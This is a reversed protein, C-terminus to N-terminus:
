KNGKMMMQFRELDERTTVKFNQEEGSILVVDLGAQFALETSGRVGDLEETTYRSNAEYYTDLRFVEPAQGAVVRSRDLLSDIHKGTKDTLYMTDKVPLVPMVGDHGAVAQLCDTVLQQSLLPRAADHILVYSDEPAYDKIDRLGNLISSQRSSGPRSFGRLKDTSYGNVQFREMLVPQWQEEAVIQIADIGPHNILTDMCYEILMQNNVEIYQKPIEGGVRTGTGGSLILAVKM